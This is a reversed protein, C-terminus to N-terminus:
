PGHLGDRVDVRDGLLVQVEARRDALDRALLDGRARGLDVLLGFVRPVDALQEGLLVDEAQGERDLVAARARSRQHQVHRDLLDGLDVGGARQDQHDLLEARQRDLQEAAVLELLAEQRAARGALARRREREGLGLGARVGGPHLRRGDEVALLPDDVAGLVPDGVEAHRVEVDDEGDGVALVPAHRGEDDLRVPGPKLTPLSSCLSPM